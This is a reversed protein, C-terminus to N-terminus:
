KGSLVTAVFFGFALPLCAMMIFSFFIRIVKPTKSGISPRGYEDVSFYRKPLCKGIVAAAMVLWFPAYLFIMKVTAYADDNAALQYTIVYSIVFFTIVILINM